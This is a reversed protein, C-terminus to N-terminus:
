MSVNEGAASGRLLALGQDSLIAHLPLAALLALPLPFPDFRIRVEVLSADHAGPQVIFCGGHTLVWGFGGLQGYVGKWLRMPPASRPRSMRGFSLVRDASTPGTRQWFVLLDFLYQLRRRHFWRVVAAM